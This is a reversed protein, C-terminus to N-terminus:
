VEKLLELVEAIVCNEKVYLVKAFNDRENSLKDYLRGASYTGNAKTGVSNCVWGIKTTMHSKINGVTCGCEYDAYIAIAEDDVPNEKDKILKVLNGPVLPLNMRRVPEIIISIIM